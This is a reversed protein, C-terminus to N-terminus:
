MKLTKRIIKTKLVLYVTMFMADMKAKRPFKPPGSIKRM